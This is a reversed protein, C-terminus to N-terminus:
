ELSILNVKKIDTFNLIPIIKKNEVIGVLLGKPFIGDKGSSIIIDGNKLSFYDEKVKFELFNGQGIAIGESNSFSSLVSIKFNKNILFEVKSYYDKCKIIKGVLVKKFFVASNKKLPSNKCGKDIILFKGYPNNIYGIVNATTDKIGEKLINFNEKNKKLDLNEIKLLTNEIKLDINEEVIRSINFNNYFSRIYNFIGVFNYNLFFIFILFIGLSIFIGLIKVDKFSKKKM